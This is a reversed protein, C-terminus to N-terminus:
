PSELAKRALNVCEAAMDHANAFQSMSLSAIRDLMAVSDAAERITAALSSQGGIERHIQAAIRLREVLDSM